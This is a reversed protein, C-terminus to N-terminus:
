VCEDYEDCVSGCVCVCVLVNIEFIICIDTHPTVRKVITPLAATTTTTSIYPTPLRIKIKHLNIFKLFIKFKEKLFM